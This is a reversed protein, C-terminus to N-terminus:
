FYISQSIGYTERGKKYVAVDVASRNKRGKRSRVLVKSAM